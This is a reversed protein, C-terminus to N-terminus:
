GQTTSTTITSSGSQVNNVTHTHNSLSHAGGSGTIDGVAAITSGGNLAGSVSLTSDFTVAGTVHLSGNITTNANITAGNPATLVISKGIPDLQVFTSGDDSRLEAKANNVAIRRPQSRVGPLVFGDSLDHMRFEAQGQVGGQQWWSDICRSAFVVLCEDGAALPFTLTVGGGGPFQVPCDLLLPMQIPTTTGDRQIAAGNIAPQVACTMKAPDFSQIIGPLATWLRTLRGDLAMRLSEEPDAVRERRDM